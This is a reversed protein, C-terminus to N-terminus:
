KPPQKLEPAFIESIQGCTDVYKPPTIGYAADADSPAPQTRPLPKLGPAKPEIAIGHPRLRDPPLM